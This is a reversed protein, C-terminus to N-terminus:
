LSALSSLLLVTDLQVIIAAAVVWVADFECVTNSKHVGIIHQLLLATQQKPVTQATAAAMITCNSM